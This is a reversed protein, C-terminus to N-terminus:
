PCFATTGSPQFRIGLVEAAVLVHGHGSGGLGGAENVLCV